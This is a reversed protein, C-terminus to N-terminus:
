RRGKIQRNLKEIVMDVLQAPTGPPLNFTVNMTMGMAGASAGAPIIQGSQRPMFIEPGQEGVWYARGEDVPGGGARHLLAELQNLLASLLAGPGTDNVPVGAALLAAIQDVLSQIPGSAGAQIAQFAAIEATQARNILLMQAAIRDKDQQTTAESLQKQLKAYELIQDSRMKFWKAGQAPDTMREAEQQAQLLAGQTYQLYQPLVDKLRELNAAIQRDISAEATYGAGLAAQAAKAVRQAERLMKDGIDDISALLDPMLDVLGQIIGQVISGGVPIMRTAPSHAGFANKFADEVTDATSNIVDIVGQTASTIGDTFGALADQGLQNLAAAM